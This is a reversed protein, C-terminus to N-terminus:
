QERMSRALFGLIPDLFYELATRAQTKVYIEAPMGAQLQLNGARRLSDPSVRVHVIYYPANNTRDLLRDASVYSVTGEVSPTIRSRLATLRVDAPTGAQVFNADEPRIRAEVLLDPSDPVIDLVADRPAIVAGITSVRLDVVEGAIPAVIRQREEADQVPRVRERLDFLTATTQRLESSAEQKFQSRLNEARLELETIKQRARALEAQNEARRSEYEAAARQLTMLRVKGVYGQSSLSENAELEDRHLKLTKEDAQLQAVRAAVEERTERAQTRILALQNALTQARVRFLASERKLLDAVRPDTQQALLESPFVIAAADAQEADLRAAKGLEANLLTRLQERAADVRVDKLVILTQGAAVKSGDRVLIEGVIGGEQHQVTKRNLDVKIFGMGIVAASLPAILVWAAVGLVLLACAVAGARVLPWPKASREVDLSPLVLERLPNAM